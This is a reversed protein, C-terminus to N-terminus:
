NWGARMFDAMANAFGTLVAGLTVAVLALGLIINLPQAIFFVQIAPAVRASLGLAVNFVIGYILLPAALSIGLSMSRGVTTVALQAFDQAPPLGGIPFLQYSHVIAGIWLHHVNLSMCTVTAAVTVFKALVPTQGGSSADYVLASSLGAQNSLISGAISIAMFMIKVIMGMALGTLLEAILIGVLGDGASAAAARAPAGLLGWLAFSMGFSILLRVRGPVSDEGFMPLLMLVAGVRAFLVLYGGVILEFDPPLEVM